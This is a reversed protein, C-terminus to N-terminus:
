GRGGSESTMEKALHLARPKPGLANQTDLPNRFATAMDVFHAVGSTLLGKYPVQDFRAASHSRAEHHDANSNWSVCM